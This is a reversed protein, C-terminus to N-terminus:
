ASWKDSSKQVGVKGYGFGLGHENDEVGHDLKPMVVSTQWMWVDHSAQFAHEESQKLNAAMLWAKVNGNAM